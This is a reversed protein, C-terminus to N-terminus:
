APLFAKRGAYDIARVPHRYLRTLRDEDLLADAPGHEVEGDPYLLLIRDCFRAALNVDHLTMILTKATMKELLDLLAVQQHLDLHTTPEDLMLVPADQMLLLALALRRREGGSLTAAQRDEFGALGVTALAARARREDLASHPEWWNLHPLRGLLTIELVSAEGEDPDDQPAYGIARARSRNSLASLPRDDLYVAGSEPRLLGALTLLLTTKGAGNVGLIGMRAGRPILLDLGRCITKGAVTVTLTRAALTHTM